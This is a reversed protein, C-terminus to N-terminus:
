ARREAKERTSLEKTLDGILNSIERRESEPIDVKPKELRPANANEWQSKLTAHASVRARVTVKIEDWICKIIKSPHDAKFFAEIAGQELLDRPIRKQGIRLFASKYWSTREDETMGSPAVNTLNPTLIMKLESLTAMQLGAEAQELRQKLKQLQATQQTSRETVPHNGM